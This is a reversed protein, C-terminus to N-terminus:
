VGVLLTGAAGIGVWVAYATGLPITRAAKDLLTFSAFACVMFGATWPWNRFSDSYRMCTTFGIEFAGAALLPLWAM